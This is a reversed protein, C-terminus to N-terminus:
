EGMNPCAAEECVTHLEKSRMLAQLKTYSEGNPAQVKIWEPRRQPRPTSHESDFRDRTPVQAM